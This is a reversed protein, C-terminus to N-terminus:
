NSKRHPSTPLTEIARDNRRRPPSRGRRWLTEEFVKLFFLPSVPRYGADSLRRVRSKGAECNVAALARRAAFHMTESMRLSVEKACFATDASSHVEIGIPAGVAALTGGRKISNSHLLPRSRVTAIPLSTAFTLKGSRAKTRRWPDERSPRRKLEFSPVNIM